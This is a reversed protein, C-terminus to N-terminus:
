HSSDHLITVIIYTCASFTKAHDDPYIDGLSFSFLILLMVDIYNISGNLLFSNNVRWTYSSSSIRLINYQEVGNQGPCCLIYQMASM